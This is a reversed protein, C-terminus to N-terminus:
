RPQITVSTGRIRPLAVALEPFREAMAAVFFKIRVGVLVGQDKWDEIAIGALRPGERLHGRLSWVAGGSMGALRQGKRREFPM